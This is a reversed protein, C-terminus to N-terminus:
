EEFYDKPELGLRKLREWADDAEDEREDTGPLSTHRVAFGCRTRVHQALTLTGAEDRLQEREQETVVITISRRELAAEPRLGSSARGAMEAGRTIWPPLGCATRVYAPITLGADRARADLELWEAGNVQFTTAHRKATAVIEEGWWRAV